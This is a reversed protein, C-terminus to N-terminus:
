SRKIKKEPLWVYSRNQSYEKFGMRKYIPEGMQSAQLIGIRYGLKKGELLTKQTVAYGIGKNRAEPITGVCYIGAVGAALYYNSTAVTEGNMIAIYPQVPLGLEMDRKFWEYMAKEAPLAGFAECMVRAWIKLKKHDRVEIIEVDDPIPEEKMENLDIAMGASSGHSEFGHAILRKTLDAPQSNQGIFWELAVERKRGEALYEEIANDANEPTLRANFATNCVPFNIDTVCWSIDPRGSIISGKWGHSFPSFAYSNEENAKIIAEPSFDTLIDTM